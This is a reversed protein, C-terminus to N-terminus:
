IIKPNGGRLSFGRQNGHELGVPSKRELHQARITKKEVGEKSYHDHDKQKLASRPRKIIM